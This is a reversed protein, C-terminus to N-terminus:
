HTARPVMLALERTSQSAFAEQVKDRQETCYVRVKGLTSAVSALYGSLGAETVVDVVWAVHQDGVVGRRLYHIHDRVEVSVQGDTEVVALLRGQLVVVPRILVLWGGAYGARILGPNMVRSVLRESEAILKEFTGHHDLSQTAILRRTHGQKEEFTCFQTSWYTLSSRWSIQAEDELLCFASSGSQAPVHLPVGFLTTSHSSETWTIRKEFFALPFRNNVCEILLSTGVCPREQAQELTRAERIEALIDMERAKGSFPDAVRRNAHVEFGVQVLLREVRQELLYGSRMVAALCEGDSWPEETNPRTPSMGM